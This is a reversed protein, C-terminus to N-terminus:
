YQTNRGRARLVARLRRSLSRYLAYMYAISVEAFATRIADILEHRNRVRARNVSRQVMAWLNEIPNLDPSNGCWPLVRVGKAELFARTTAARHAQAGGHMFIYPRGDGVLRNCVVDVDNLIEEQYRIANLTGTVIKIPGPGNWSICGVRASRYRVERNHSHV